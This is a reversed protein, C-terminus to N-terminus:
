RRRLLDSMRFRYPLRTRHWASLTTRSRSRDWGAWGGPDGLTPWVGKSPSYRRYADSSGTPLSQIVNPAIGIRLPLPRMRACLLQVSARGYMARKLAKLVNVQGETQGNSSEESIANRVAAVDRRLKGAFTRMAHIGSTMADRIWDDLAAIRRGRLLGRFRM